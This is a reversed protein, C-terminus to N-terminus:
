QCGGYGSTAYAAFQGRVWGGSLEEGGLVAEILLALELLHEQVVPRESLDVARQGGAATGCLRQRVELAGQLSTWGRRHGQVPQAKRTEGDPVM